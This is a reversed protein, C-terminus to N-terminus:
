TKAQAESKSDEKSPEKSEEKPLVENEEDEEGSPKDDNGYLTPYNSMCEQMAKFSEFCDSGKPEADSYFRFVDNLLGFLYLM